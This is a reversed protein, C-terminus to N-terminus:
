TGGIAPLDTPWNKLRDLLVGHAASTPRTTCVNSPVIGLAARATCRDIQRCTFGDVRFASRSGGELYRVRSRGGTGSDPSAPARSVWFHGLRAVRSLSKSRRRLNRATSRASSRFARMMSNAVREHEFIHEISRQLSRTRYAAEISPWIVPRAIRDGIRRCAEM